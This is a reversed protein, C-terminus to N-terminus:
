FIINAKDLCTKMSFSVAYSHTGIRFRELAIIPKIHYMFSKYLYWLTSFLSKQQGSKISIARPKAEWLSGLIIGFLLEKDYYVAKDNKDKNYSISLFYGM